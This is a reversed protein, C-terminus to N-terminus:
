ELRSCMGLSENSKGYSDNAENSMTLSLVGGKAIESHKLFARQLPEGNLELKEIYKNEASNNITRIIFEDGDYFESDLTIKIEDFIPSGIQYIPDEAVGGDVQYLGMKMLVANAGMLGQDEDGNYGFDPSLDDYVSNVIERSWYQTLSPKGLENFIFATQISPQNGYNIPIRAYEPNSEQAHSTGATFGLLSSQEFSENLKEAAIECGGMANALGSIDHPVFWTAQSSNSEVFGAEDDFPDFPSYWEGTVSKPRIYGSDQDFLKRWNQSREAFLAADSEKDLASAFQSLTWDQYAYELTMGAGKQHLGRASSTPPYPVYGKEIYDSLGGGGALNHEYGSREMIGGPLHNKRVAAYALEADFDRIGKQWASVVFPTSSAGVMVYTYNGGSPGRPFLGGDKYYNLFSKVFDVTRAPYALPWLTQITWQAGWFSDSNYHHNEAQGDNGIAPRRIRPSAGTMDLYAGDVDSVLRRGQLSHWLDTYFRAQQQDTGGSVIIKSLEEDWIELAKNSVQNFDWEPLEALLNKQANEASTYSLAVKMMVQSDNAVSGFDFLVGAREGEILEANSVDDGQWGTWEQIPSDLEIHFYIRVPKPRRFTSGNVIYGSIETASIQEAKGLIIESPGLDGSLNLLIKRPRNEPYSYRHFGVRTTATLEVGIGYRELYLQHYGPRVTEKEHSFDSYFDDKLAIVNAESNLPMVSVGSLQWAHVHSLGKIETTNYLYGSGWAGAVETDPSLNVMGFPLSASDFYFWRSNATDLLPYVRDVPRLEEAGLSLSALSWLLVASLSATIKPWYATLCYNTQTKLSCQQRRKYM